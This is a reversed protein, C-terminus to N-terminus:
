RREAPTLQEVPRAGHCHVDIIPYKARKIDTRPIKYISKPRDDKLLVQDPPKAGGSPSPAPTQQAAASRSRVAVAASSLAMWKRRNLPEM